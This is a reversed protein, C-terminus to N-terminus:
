APASELAEATENGPWRRPVDHIDAASMSEPTLERDSGVRVSPTHDEFTSRQPDFVLDLKDHETAAAPRALQTPSGTTGLAPESAIAEAAATVKTSSPAPKPPRKLDFRRSRIGYWRGM